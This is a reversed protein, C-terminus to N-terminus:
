GFLRAWLGRRGPPVPIGACAGRKRRLYSWVDPGVDDLDKSLRRATRAFGYQTDLWDILGPGLQRDSLPCSRRVARFREAAETAGVRDLDAAIRHLRELCDPRILAEVLGWPGKVSRRWILATLAPELEADREDAGALAAEARDLDVELETPRDSSLLDDLTQEM